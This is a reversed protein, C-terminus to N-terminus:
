GRLNLLLLVLFLITIALMVPNDPIDGAYQLLTKGVKENVTDETQPIEVEHKIEVKDQDVGKFDGPHSKVWETMGKILQQHHEKQGKIVAPTITGKLLSSSSWDVQTTCHIRTAQKNNLSDHTLCTRTRITFSKGSPIDPTQTESVIEYSKQPDAIAITESGNCSSSKPGISNNMHMIYNLTRRQNGEDGSGEWESIKLETLGKDNTYFHNTFDPNHYLLNFTQEMDLPFKVNLALEKYEEGSPKTIIPISGDGDGSATVQAEGETDQEDIDINESELGEAEVFANFRDPSRARWCEMLADYLSDRNWLSGYGYHQEVWKDDDDLELVRVYVANQIWKATTGKKISVIDSLSHVKMTIIGLINSRFCLHYRTLCLRGHVLISAQLDAAQTAVITMYDDPLKFSHATSPDAGFSTLPELDMRKAFNKEFEIQRQNLNSDSAKDSVATVFSASTSTMGSTSSLASTSTM